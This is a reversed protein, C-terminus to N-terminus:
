LLAEAGQQMLALLRDGPLVGFLVTLLGCGALALRASWRELDPTRAGATGVVPPEMYMAVVIRLYYYLSIASAILALVVLGLDGAAVGARFVWLKGLFGATGPIGALSILSITMVVAARPDTRALGALGALDDVDEGKRELSTIVAFFGLNALGYALLYFLIGAAADLGAAHLEAAGAPHHADFQRAVAVLGVLLYGAHAVGSYAMLRRPNRQTLAAANGVIVTLAALFWLLWVASSGLAGCAGLAQLVRLAAGFAAVKVGVSMWGTVPSPAGEYADPSWAHFPVAAVKFLLGVMLLAGGVTALRLGGTDLAVQAMVDLRMTRTAGYLLSMGYLLFGAAFAGMIFYKMAGEASRPSRRDVGTLAYAAISLTEIAVFLTVLDNAVVLALMGSTGFLLLGYLEGHAISPQREPDGAGGKGYHAVALGIVTTGLLIPLALAAGYASVSIAGGLAVRAVDGTWLAGATMGSLVTAMTTLLALSVKNAANKLFLDAILAVLGFVAPIAIPMLLWFEDADFSISIPDM